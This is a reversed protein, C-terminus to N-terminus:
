SMGLRVVLFVVYTAFVGGVLAMALVMRRRERAHDQPTPAYPITVLLPALAAREIQLSSRVRPDFRVFAFLLGLPAAVALLLGIMTVHMLRLGTPVLPPEPDEYVRLTLGRQEADLDMSVRANERRKLLDQYADRTSVYRRLLDSLTADQAVVDQYVDRTSEYRRVLDSLPSDQGVVRMEPSQPQPTQARPRPVGGTAAAIRNRVEELRARAARATSEELATAQESEEQAIRLEERVRRVNPHKDTFTGLLTDLERQLQQIREARRQRAQRLEGSGVEAALVDEEVRLAALDGPSLPPGLPRAAALDSRKPAPERKAEGQGLYYAQVQAHADAVKAAYETVQRDIFEFAESSQRAKAFSAERIYIEALKKAIAFCRQPDSDVYSLKILEPRQKVIRIRRSLKSLMREEARPNKQEGWGGFVMVERLIRRSQMAQSVISAQDSVGTAVARGEMLPAIINKAEVLIVAHAEYEKPKVVGFVLTALAIGAFIAALAVIRRRGEELMLKLVEVLPTVPHTM